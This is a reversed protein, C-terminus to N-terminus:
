WRVDRCKVKTSWSKDYMLTSRDNLSDDSFAWLAYASAAGGVAEQDFVDAKSYCIFTAGDFCHESNCHSAGDIIRSYLGYLCASRADTPVFKMYSLRFDGLLSRARSKCVMSLM